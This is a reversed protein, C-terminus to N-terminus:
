LRAREAIASSGSAEDFRRIMADQSFSALLHGSEDRIQGRVYSMGAGVATSEHDYLLWGDWAIPDHFSIEIAIVGSSLSRHAMAAGIGPHARLTTSISLHNTFHALLARALDDRGPTQDYRLWAEIRPPGFEDPDNPDAVGVLRVERGTLPMSRAIAQSPSNTPQQPPHRVVDESPVDLLLTVAACTRGAQSASVVATAFTRGNQVVDVGFEILDAGMVPRCFVGSARRVVKGAVSKSGAVIAQSLVQSADVVDRDGSDNSGVFRGAGVSEVDFVALLGALSSNM